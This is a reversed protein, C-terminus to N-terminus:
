RDVADIEVADEIDAPAGSPESLRRLVAKMEVGLERFQRRERSSQTLAALVPVFRSVRGAVRWATTRLAARTLTGSVNEGQGAGRGTLMGPLQSARMSVVGSEPLDLGYAQALARWLAMQGRDSEPDFGYVVCLRQALRYAGIASALVEPPISAMGGLGAALGLVSAQTAYRAIVRDATRDIAQPSPSPDDVPREPDVFPWRRGRLWTRTRRTPVSMRGLLVSLLRADITEAWERPLQRVRQRLDPGESV